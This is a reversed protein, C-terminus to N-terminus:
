AGDVLHRGTPHCNKVTKYTAASMSYACLSLSSRVCFANSVVMFFSSKIPKAANATTPTASACTSALLLPTASAFTSALLLM